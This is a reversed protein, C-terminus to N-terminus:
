GVKVPKPANVYALAEAPEMFLIAESAAYKADRFASRVKEGRKKNEADFEKVAARYRAIQATDPKSFKKLAESEATYGFATAIKKELHVRQQPTLRAM